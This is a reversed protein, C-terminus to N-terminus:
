SRHPAAASGADGERALLAGLFRLCDTESLLGVLRGGDVVPLCGIRERLMVAVAHGITWEPDATIVSSTMVDGVRVTTLWEREAAPRLQLVSSIASRFLDRQTLIGVLEAGDMVPMHRIRGLMMIDSALDLHDGVELSVVEPTMLERVYTVAMAASTEVQTGRAGAAGAPARM